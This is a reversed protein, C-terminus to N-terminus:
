AELDGVRIQVPGLPTNTDINGAIDAQWGQVRMGDQTTMNGAADLSFSGSRTYMQQGVNDIIFFGDGQIALDASRGTLQRRCECIQHAEEASGVDTAVLVQTAGCHVVWKRHEREGM